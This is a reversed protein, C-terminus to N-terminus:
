LSVLIAGVVMVIIPAIRKAVPEKFAFWAGIAAIVISLHKISQVSSDAGGSQAILMSVFGFANILGLGVPKLVDLKKLRDVFEKREFAVAGAVFFFALMITGIGAYFYVNTAAIAVSHLSTTFSWAITAILMQRMPKNDRMLRFPSLPDLTKAGVMGLWYAGVSVVVCGVLAITSPFESAILASTGLVLVPSLNLIPTVLSIDGSRHARLYLTLGVVELSSRLLLTPWFYWPIDTVPQILALPGLIIAAVILWLAGGTWDGVGQMAKKALLHQVGFFFASIFAIPIWYQGLQMLMTSGQSFFTDLM